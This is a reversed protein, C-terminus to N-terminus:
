RVIACSPVILPQETTNRLPTSRKQRVLRYEHPIRRWRGVVDDNTRVQGPEFKIGPWPTESFGRPLALRTADIETRAFTNIPHIVILNLPGGQGQTKLVVTATIQLNADHLSDTDASLAALAAAAGFWRVASAEGAPADAVEIWGRSLVDIPPPSSRRRDLHWRVTVPGHQQLAASDAAPLTDARLGSFEMFGESSDRASGLHVWSRGISFVSFTKEKPRVLVFSTSDFLYYDGARAHPRTIGIRGISVDRGAVSDIDLRGRGHAFDVVGAVAGLIDQAPSPSDPGAVSFRIGVLKNTQSALITPAAAALMLIRVFSRTSRHILAYLPMSMEVLLVSLRM